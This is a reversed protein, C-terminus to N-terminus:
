RGRGQGRALRGAERDRARNAAGAARLMAAAHAPSGAGRGDDWAARVARQLPGPVRRWDGPCMLRGPPVRWGCGRGPCLHTDDEAPGPPWGSGAGPAERALIGAQRRRLQALVEDRAPATV